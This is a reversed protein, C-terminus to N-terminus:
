GFVTSLSKKTKKIVKYLVDSLEGIQFPKALMGCFGYRRYDSMIPDDSYGSSVIAKIGPDIERLKQITEKGGMGNPIVIDLIVFDFPQRSKMARKYLDVAKTGEEALEVEYGLYFLMKAL